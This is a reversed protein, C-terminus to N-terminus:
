LEFGLQPAEFVLDTRIITKQLDNPNTSDHLMRHPFVIIQGAKAPISLLIDEEKANTDWDNYNRQSEPLNTQPDHIFRTLALSDELYIIISMLTKKYIHYQYTDDYHAILKQEGNYRIYRLLPNIHTSTWVRKNNLMRPLIEDECFINKPIYPSIRQYLIQALQENYMSMRTSMVQNTPQAKGYIDANHWQNNKTQELLYQIEEKDLCNNLCYVHNGQVSYTTAEIKPEYKFNFSGVNKMHGVFNNTNVLANPQRNFGCNTKWGNKIDMYDIDLHVAPSASVYKHSNYKHLNELNNSFFLFQDREKLSLMDIIHVQQPESLTLFYLYYEVFDYSAGFVEEDIRGDYMDGQPNVEMISQPTNLIQAVKYVESKHLDSILQVDVLGDSAKGFYGLYLGEDRNTTGCIIAPLNAQTLLTACYYLTPTRTHAVLQGKAWDNGEINTITSVTTELQQHIPALEIVFPELEHAKCVEIGRKTAEDQGTAGINHSVPLCVPIIKEIPSNPLTSAYKVIGLVLASDIGGSVAVVCSKLGCQRMYQNLMYAKINLYTQSNFNKVQRYNDLLHVLQPLLTNDSLPNYIKM